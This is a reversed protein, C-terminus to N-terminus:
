AFLHAHIWAHTCMHVCECTCAAVLFGCARKHAPTCAPVPPCPTSSTECNGCLYAQAPAGNSSMCACTHGFFGASGCTATCGTSGLVQCNYSVGTACHCAHMGPHAQACACTRGIFRVSFQLLKQLSSQILASMTIFISCAHMTVTWYDINGDDCSRCGPCNVTASTAISTSISRTFTTKFQQHLPSQSM